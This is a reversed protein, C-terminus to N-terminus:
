LNFIFKVIWPLSAFFVEGLLYKKRPLDAHMEVGWNVTWYVSGLTYLPKNQLIGGAALILLSTMFSIPYGIRLKKILGHKSILLHHRLEHDLTNELFDRKNYSSQSRDIIIEKKGLSSPNIKTLPSISIKLDKANEVTSIEM